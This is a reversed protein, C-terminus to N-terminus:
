RGLGNGAGTGARIFSCRRSRWQASAEGPSPFRPGPASMATLNVLYQESRATESAVTYTMSAASFAIQYPCGHYILSSLADVPNGCLVGYDVVRSVHSVRLSSTIM